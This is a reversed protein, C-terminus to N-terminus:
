CSRPPTPDRTSGARSGFRRAASGPRPEHRRRDPDRHPSPRPSRATRQATPSPRWSGLPLVTRGPPFGEGDSVDAEFVELHGIQTADVQFGVTLDFQAPGDVGGGSAFGDALLGGDRGLLRWNVTSEFSRSCGSVTFGSHVLAGAHPETAIVFAADPFADAFADCAGAAKVAGSAAACGLAVAAALTRPLRAM